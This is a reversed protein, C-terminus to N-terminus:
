PIVLRPVHVDKDVNNVIVSVPAVHQVNQISVTYSDPVVHYFYYWGEPDSYVTMKWGPRELVIPVYMAPFLGNQTQRMVRGLVTQAFATGSLLIIIILCFGMQRLALYSFRRM